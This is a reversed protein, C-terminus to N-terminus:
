ARGVSFGAPVSTADAIRSAVSALQDGSLPQRGQPVATSVARAVTSTVADASVGKAAAVSTLSNGAGLQRVLDSSPMNLLQAVAGVAAQMRGVAGPGGSRRSAGSWTAAGAGTVSGAGSVGSGGLASVNM